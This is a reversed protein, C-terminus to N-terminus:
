ASRVASPHCNPCPRIPNGDADEIVRGTTSWQGAPSCEGCWDPVAALPPLACDGCGRRPRTHRKCRSRDGGSPPPNPPYNNEERSQAAVTTRGQLAVTASNTASCEPSVTARSDRSMQGNPSLKAIARKAAIRQRDRERKREAADSLNREETWIDPDLLYSEGQPIWLGEAALASVRRPLNKGGFRPVQTKPILGDSEATTCYMFSQVLLWASGQSKDEAAQVRTDADLSAYLRCWEM